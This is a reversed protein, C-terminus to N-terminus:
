VNGVNMTSNIEKHFCNKDTQTMGQYKFKVQKAFSENAIKTTHTKEENQYHPTIM